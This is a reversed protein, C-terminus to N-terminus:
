ALAERVRNFGSDYVRNHDVIITEGYYLSAEHTTRVRVGFISADLVECPWVGSDRGEDLWWTGTVPAIM